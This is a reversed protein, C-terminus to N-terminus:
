RVLALLAAPCAAVATTRAVQVAATRAEAEEPTQAEIHVAAAEDKQVPQASVPLAHTCAEVAESVRV